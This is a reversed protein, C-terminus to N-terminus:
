QLASDTSPQADSAVTTMSSPHDTAAEPAATKGAIDDEPAGDGGFIAAHVIAQALLVSPAWGNPNEDVHVKVLKLAEEAKLGGGILGLRIPERVDKVGWQDSLLRMHVVRLGAGCVEELSFVHGLPSLSFDHEGGQWGRRITGVPAM